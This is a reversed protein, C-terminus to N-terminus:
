RRFHPPSSHCSVMRLCTQGFNINTYHYEPRAHTCAWSMLDWNTEKTDWSAYYATVAIWLVLCVLSVVVTTINGTKTMHRIQAIADDAFRDVGEVVCGTVCFSVKANFSALLLVIGLGAAAGATGLLWLAPWVKVDQPWVKYTGSGESFKEEVDKTRRYGRLADGLAGAVALSFVVVLIRLVLRTVYFGRSHRLEPAPRPKSFKTTHKSASQTSGLLHAADSNPDPHQRPSPPLFIQDPSPYPHMIM